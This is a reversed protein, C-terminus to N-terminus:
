YFTENQSFEDALNSVPMIKLHVDWQISKVQFEYHQWSPFFSCLFQCLLYFTSFSMAFLIHQQIELLARSRCCYLYTFLYIFIRFQLLRSVRLAMVTLFRQLEKKGDLIESSNQLITHYDATTEIWPVVMVQCDGKHVIDGLVKRWKM